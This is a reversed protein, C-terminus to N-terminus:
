VECSRRARHLRPANSRARSGMQVQLITKISGLPNKLNHSISAAMQGLVALREREALERELQLKEEILRCLDLAGPLQECLFELSATTEGSISAGHPRVNLTAIINGTLLHAQRAEGSLVVLACRPEGLTLEGMVGNEKAFRRTTETIQRLERLRVQVSSLEFAEKVRSEIFHTLRELNGQRAEQQIEATLRQVLDMESQAARRLVRRMLRQLPEFFVVPLFLLIAATAEPPLYPEMWLSVRRVLSLYLLALFTAFVAYILNRQRGIQLFNFKQVKRILTALPAMAFSIVIISYVAADQEGLGGRRHRLMFHAILIWLAVWALDFRLSRHFGKQEGDPAAKVFQWQWGAAILLSVILWGQFVWGLSNSPLEFNFGSRLRLAADLKPFLAVAPLYALALWLRKQARSSLQERVQAYEVHLHVLLSPLFWLGLCVVTWCFISLSPPVASYYLQANLALLSAGFFFVLALCLFFFIREFNRQRRHGLIVVIWFFPLLTGATLVILRLYLSYYLIRGTAM